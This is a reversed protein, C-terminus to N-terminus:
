ADADLPDALRMQLLPYPKGDGDVPLRKVTRFGLHEYFRAASANAENVDLEAAGCERIAYKLLAGGLGRGRSENEVFLMEVREGRVGLFGCLRGETEVGYLDVYAFYSELHEKYHLFDERKLFDHTALVASEWIEKLRPYDAPTIDRIKVTPNEERFGFLAIM